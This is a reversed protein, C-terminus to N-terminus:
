NELELGFAGHLHDNAQLVSDIADRDDGDQPEVMQELTQGFRLGKELYKRERDVLREFLKTASQKWEVM